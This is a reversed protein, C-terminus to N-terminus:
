WGKMLRQQEMDTNKPTIRPVHRNDNPSNIVMTNTKRTDLCVTEISHTVM